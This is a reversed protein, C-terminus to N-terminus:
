AAAAPCSLPQVGRIELAKNFHVDMTKSAKTIKLNKLCGRFSRSTTLAAQHVGAPYGGVYIPDNTDCTNSRANPSEAQSQQGDVVLEVKHRLKKAVVTHWGGDCFGGGVPAHAATIRGAGNDVHFLLKGGAIEIGLGDRAQNSVAVIVGNTRSTRFEFAISVDLGVRYSSVAKLFGTGDFYTGAEMAEFCSGVMHRSTPTAMNLNFDEPVSESRGTTPSRTSVPGGMVRVNRVCGNISYLIPGIRKTTYNQPLGGIYLMGVVDLLDAKKPSMMQKAYRGDVQLVARQKNRNVRIKHWNGDNISYPVCGSINGHGLDYGLCAQGDKIQLSVFDAHNIRAMYLLLGSDEKTRLEFELILKERVKADDFAFSMHSNRTLGFQYANQLVPPAVASACADAPPVPVPSPDLPKVEEKGKGSEDEEDPLLPPLPPPPALNPCQGIEANEFSVPQSFDSLITNIMLNWICGQFPVNVRNSTQEVEAPIGGLFIRHLNVPQDNPLATERKAEEDVQVAFSRGPLREIRLSHERGDNLVGQDPRRVVRRPSHSGTFMLVELSGKNLM